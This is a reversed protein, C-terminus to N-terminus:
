FKLKPLGQKLCVWNGIREIPELNNKPRYKQGFMFIRGDGVEAAEIYICDNKVGQVTIFGDYSFAFAKTETGFREVQKQAMTLVESFSEGVLSHIAGPEGETLIFPLLTEGSTVCKMAVEIAQKAVKLILSPPNSDM